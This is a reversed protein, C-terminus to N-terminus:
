NGISWNQESLMEQAEERFDQNPSQTLGALCLRHMKGGFRDVFYNNGTRKILEELEKPSVFKYECKTSSIKNVPVIGAYIGVSIDKGDASVTIYTTPMAPIRGTMDLGIKSQIEKSLEDGLFWESRALNAAKENIIKGPLNWIILPTNSTRCLLIKGNIENFLFGFVALTFKAKM